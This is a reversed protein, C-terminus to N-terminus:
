KGYELMEKVKALDNQDDIETCLRNKVDYGFVKCKNSVNNFANEAYCKRNNNECFRKIEELWEAWDEKNIKYLAQAEVANEFFDVGVKLVRMNKDIVAKFDKAPLPLTTSIKMVSNKQELMDKLVSPDFVIDGHMLVIDDILENRACYISYIYNTEAFIPNKIFTYTLPLSLSRCYKILVDDFYGTTIVVDKIKFESLIRLQRSLITEGNSIETMCKPHTKTLDGMRHGLGSNLILAKM